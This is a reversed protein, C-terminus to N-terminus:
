ELQQESLTQLHTRALARITAHIQSAQEPAATIRVFPAVLNDQFSLIGATRTASHLTTIRLSGTKEIVTFNLQFDTPGAHILLTDALLAADGTLPIPEQGNWPRRPTDTEPHPAPEITHTLLGDSSLRLQVSLNDYADSDPDDPLRPEDPDEPPPILDISVSLLQLPHRENLAVLQEALEEQLRSFIRSTSFAALDGCCRSYWALQQCQEVSLTVQQFVEWAPSEAPGHPLVRRAVVIELTGDARRDLDHRVQLTQESADPESTDYRVQGATTHGQDDLLVNLIHHMGLPLILSGPLENPAALTIQPHLPARLDLNGPTVSFDWDHDPDPASRAPPAHENWGSDQGIMRAQATRDTWRAYSTQQEPSDSLRLADLARAMREAWPQRKPPHGTM